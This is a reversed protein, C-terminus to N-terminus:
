TRARFCSAWCSVVRWLAPAHVAMWASCSEKSVLRATAGATPTQTGSQARLCSSPWHSFALCSTWALRSTQGQVRLCLSDTPEYGRVASLLRCVRRATARAGTTDGEAVSPPPVPFRALLWAGDSLGADALRQAPDGLEAEPTNLAAVEEGASPRRADAPAVLWLTVLAADVRWPFAEQADRVVRLIFSEVTQGPDVDGVLVYRAGPPQTRRVRLKWLQKLAPNPVKGPLM